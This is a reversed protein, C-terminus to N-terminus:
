WVYSQMLNDGLEKWLKLSKEYNLAKEQTNWKTTEVEADEFESIKKEAVDLWRNIGVLTNREIM